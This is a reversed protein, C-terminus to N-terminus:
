ISKKIEKLIPQIASTFKDIRSLKVKITHNNSVLGLKHGKDLVKYKRGADPEIAQIMILFSLVSSAHRRRDYVKKNFIHNLYNSISIVNNNLMHKVNSSKQVKPETSEEKPTDPAAALMKLITNRQKTAKEIIENAETLEQKLIELIDKM